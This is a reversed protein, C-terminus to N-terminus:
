GFDTPGVHEVQAFKHPDDFGLNTQHNPRLCPQTPWDFGLDNRNVALILAPLLPTAEYTFRFIDIIQSQM